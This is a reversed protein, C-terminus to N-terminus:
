YQRMKKKAVRVAVASRTRAHLTAWMSRSGSYQRGLVGRPNTKKPKDCTWTRRLGRRACMRICSTPWYHSTSMSRICVRAKPTISRTCVCSAIHNNDGNICVCNNLVALAFLLTSTVRLMSTSTGPFKAGHRAPKRCQYDILVTAFLPSHSVLNKSNKLIRESSLGQGQCNIPWRALPWSLRCTLTRACITHSSSRLNTAGDM